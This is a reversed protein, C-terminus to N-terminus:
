ATSGPLATITAFHEADQARPERLGAGSTRLAIRVRDSRFLDHSYEIPVGASDFGTRTIAVLPAGEEVSLLAAEDDTAHVVEVYEEADAVTVDFEKELLEYISGSLSHDLLRPFRDAPFHALDLSIPTGNALRLRRVIVVLDNERLDLAQITKTDAREIVTGLVRTGAVYGHKQLHEPLGVARTLDHDVRTIGVFTGGARGAFRHILGVDELGALVTRLTGRSVGYRESLERESGLRAGPGLSESEMDALIRRRLTEAVSSEGKEHVARV